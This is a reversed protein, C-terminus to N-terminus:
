VLSAEALMEEKKVQLDAVASEHGNRNNTYKKGTYEQAIQLLLKPRAVRTMRLQGNTRIHLQLGQIVTVLRAFNVSPDIRM